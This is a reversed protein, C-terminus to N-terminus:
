WGRKKKVSQEVLLLAKWEKICLGQHGMTSNQFHKLLFIKKSIILGERL